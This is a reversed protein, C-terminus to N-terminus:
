KRSSIIIDVFYEIESSGAIEGQSVLTIKLKEKIVLTVKVFNLQSVLTVKELEVQSHQQQTKKKKNKQEINAGM